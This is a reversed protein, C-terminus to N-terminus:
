GLHTLGLERAVIIAPDGILGWLRPSGMWRGLHVGRCGEFDAERLCWGGGWALRGGGTNQLKSLPKWQM